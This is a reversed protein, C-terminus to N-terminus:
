GGAEGDTFVVQQLREAAFRREDNGQLLELLCTRYMAFYANEFPLTMRCLESLRDIEANQEPVHYQWELKCTRYVAEVYQAWAGGVAQKYVEVAHRASGIHRGAHLAAWATATFTVGTVLEKTGLAAFGAPYWEPMRVRAYGYFPAELAPYRLPYRLLDVGRIVQGLLRYPAWTAARRYEDIPPLVLDGRLDQGYVFTSGLLLLCLDTGLSLDAVYHLSLDLRLRSAAKCANIIASSRQLEAESLGPRFVLIMDIDSSPVATANSYSGTLYYAIVRGPLGDEYARVIREVDEPLHSAALRLAPKSIRQNRM